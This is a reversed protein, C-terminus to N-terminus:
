FAFRLSVVVTFDRELRTSAMDQIVPLQIGAELISDSTILQVGPSGFVQLSGDTLYRANVEGIAYFAWPGTAASQGGMLRYSLATDARLEDYGPLGGATNFQYLVDWDIWWDRRQHTWVTGIIPDFSESSFPEDYSPVQAGGIAAWRTTVGPKDDQYFRYKGLLTIDAIGTDETTAGSGSKIRRYVTPVTGLVQFNQTVGYVVTVPQVSTTVSRGLATPDNSFESYRWQTRVIMGGEPPTLAVDTNLGAASVPRSGSTLIVALIAATLAHKANLRTM